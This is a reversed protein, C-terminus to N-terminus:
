EPKFAEAQIEGPSFVPQISLRRVNIFGCKTFLRTLMDMDLAFYHFNGPYNQGAFLKINAWESHGCDGFIRFMNIEDTPHEDTRRGSLYTKCIFELDPTRLFVRGGPKLVRLWDRVVSDVKLWSVHEVSHNSLIESACGDPFPLPEDGMRCVATLGPMGPDVDVHLYGPQPNGGSGVEIKVPKSFDVQRLLM